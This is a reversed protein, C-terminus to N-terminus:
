AVYVVTDVCECITEGTTANTFSISLKYYGTGTVAAYTIPQTYDTGSSLAGTVGSASAIVTGTDDNTKLEFKFKAGAPVDAKPDFTVTYTGGGFTVTKVAIKPTTVAPVNPTHDPDTVVYIELISYQYDGGITNGENDYVITVDNSITGRNLYELAEFGTTVGTGIGYVKSNPTLHYTTVEGAVRIGDGDDRWVQVTSGLLSSGNPNFTVVDNNVGSTASDKYYVAETRVSYPNGNANGVRFLNEGNAGAAFSKGSLIINDVGDVPDSAGAGVKTLNGDNDFKMGINTDVSTSHDKLLEVHAVTTSVLNKTEMVNALAGNFLQVAFLRGVYNSNRIANLATLSGTTLTYEEGNLWGQLTGTTGDWSSTGNFYFLGYTTLGDIEGTVYLVDARGDNDTDAWDIEDFNRNDSTTSIVVDGPLASVGDYVAISGNAANRVMIQTDDDLWAVVNATGTGTNKTVYALNKYVKGATNKAAWHGEYFNDFTTVTNGSNGTYTTGGGAVEVAVTKDNSGKVFKWLNNNLVGACNVNGTAGDSTVSFSNTAAVPAMYLIGQFEGHKPAFGVGNDTWEVMPANSSTDYMPWLQVTNTGDSMPDYVNGRTGKLYSDTSHATFDDAHAMFYDIEETGTTGDSYKVTAIAKATGNTQSEGQGFSAYVSTIVGYSSRGGDDIAQVYGYQDYYWTYTTNTNDGAKDMKLTLDDFYDKGDVQHQNTNRYVVTQKGQVGDMKAINEVHTNEVLVSTERGTTANYGPLPRTIFADTENKTYVYDGTGGDVTKVVNPTFGNMKLVDGASYEWNDKSTAPKQITRRTPANVGADYLDVTMRAPTIVHGAADLVAPNTTIVKAVITDIMVVTDKPAKVGKETDGDAARYSRTNHWPFQENMDKETYIETLRGYGGVKTVTDAAVIHYKETVVNDTNSGSDYGNNVYLRYDKSAATGFEMLDAVECERQLDHFSQKPTPKLTAVTRPTSSTPNLSAKWVLQPRGWEDNSWGAGTYAKGNYWSNESDSLAFVEWALSSTSNNLSNDFEVYGLGPTWNVQPILSGRFLLEAVIERRANMNLTYNYAASSVSDSIHKTKALSAVNVQWNPGTFEGNKGYGVARLIMALVEYGTVKGYPNFTTPSTGKIIGANQCYGVYGAFWDGDDTATHPKVDVFNSYDAYLGVQKDNIDGTAIRYVLAAAEARTIDSQPRFDKKEGSGDGKIVELGTLVAVAEKFAQTVEESDNFDDTGNATAASASLMLSYAMVMALVLALFKKLNRM